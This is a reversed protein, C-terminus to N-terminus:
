DDSLWERPPQLSEVFGKGSSAGNGKRPSETTYNMLLIHKPYKRAIWFYMQYFDPTRRPRENHWRLMKAQDPSLSRYVEEPDDIIGTTKVGSFTPRDCNHYGVASQDTLYAYGARYRRLTFKFTYDNWSSKANNERSITIMGNESMYGYVIEALESTIKFANLQFYGTQAEAEEMSTFIVPKRMKRAPIVNGDLDMTVM